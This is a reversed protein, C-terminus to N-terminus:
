AGSAAQDPQLVDSLTGRGPPRRQRHRVRAFLGGRIYQAELTARCVRQGAWVRKRGYQDPHRPADPPGHVGPPHVPMRPRYQLHDPHGVPHHGGAGHRSLFRDHAYQLAAVGAGPSQGLGPGCVLVRLGAGDPPLHYRRGLCSQTALDESRAPSVSLGSPGSAPPQSAAEAVPGGPGQPADTHGGATKGHRPGRAALSRAAHPRWCVSPGSAARRDAAEARAGGRIGAHAPRVCDIPGTEAAPM